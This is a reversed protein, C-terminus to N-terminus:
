IKRSMAIKNLCFAFFKVEEKTTFYGPSVRVTGSRTTKLFNHALYSCHYGARVAINKEDLEDATQESHVGNVFFSLTPAFIKGHMKEFVTINKIAGLDEKLINMIYTEREHIAKEGGVSKIFDLGASLGAIGPLNVTGSELSDPYIEPQSKQLSLSGTGGQILSEVTVRESFLLVGTGMPGFLGKHGPACVIDVGDKKMDVPFIGASQACDLAFLLGYRKCLSSLKKVPLVTGFVNSAYTCLIMRTNKRILREFNKATEEDDNPNVAAVDYTIMGRRQLTELPRLVSNHELASIIVHDGKKLIGKIATNLSHTCNLTFIVREVDCSFMESLKERCEFVTEGAKASLKHGGRGPNAGFFRMANASANVVSPPKPFSTAANDLYIM